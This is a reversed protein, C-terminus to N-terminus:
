GYNKLMEPELQKILVSALRKRARHLRVKASNISTELVDAVENLNREEFYFLTLIAADEASLYSLCRRLRENREENIMMELANTASDLRTMSVEEIEVEKYKIKKARLHDLCCNRTVRYLWTSFKSDGKFGQISKFVKIFVDQAVEEAAQREKVMQLVLSFVLGKYENVLQEFALTDGAKIRDLLQDTGNTAM